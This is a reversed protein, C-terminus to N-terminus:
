RDSGCLVGRSGSGSRTRGEVGEMAAAVESDEKPEM